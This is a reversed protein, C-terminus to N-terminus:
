SGKANSISMPIRLSTGAPINLTNLNNANAIYWWMSSDEYFQFALIDLRDGEQTIVYLDDDKLPIKNYITTNYKDVSNTRKQTPKSKGISTDLYRSM